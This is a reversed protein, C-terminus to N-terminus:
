ITDSEINDPRWLKICVKQGELYFFAPYDVPDCARIQNYLQILSKSPDIISDNPRRIDNYTSAEKENQKVRNLEGNKLKLFFEILLDSEILQAKRVLSKTTDFLTLGFEKQMFIDGNDMEQTLEHITVGSKQEGNIIIYPGSRYGRYKPLLTPHVNVALKKALGIVTSDLIYSFGCSLLIDFKINKVKEYINDKKVTIVDIGNELAFLISPIFRSNNKSPIPCVVGIVNFGSEVLAKLAKERAGGTFFLIDM